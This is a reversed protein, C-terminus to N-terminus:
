RGRVWRQGLSRIEALDTWGAPAVPITGLVDAIGHDGIRQGDLVYAVQDGRRWRVTFRLRFVRAGFRDALAGTVTSKGV